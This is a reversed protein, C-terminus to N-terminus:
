FFLVRNSEYEKYHVFVHRTFYIFFTFGENRNNTLGNKGRGEERRGWWTLPYECAKIKETGRTTSCHSQNHVSTAPVMQLWDCTANLIVSVIVFTWNEMWLSCSTWACLCLQKQFPFPFVFTITWLCQLVTLFRLAVRGHFWGKVKAGKLVECTMFTVHHMWTDKNPLLVSFCMASFDTIQLCCYLLVPFCYWFPVKM